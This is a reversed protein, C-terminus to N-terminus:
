MSVIQMDHKSVTKECDWPNCGDINERTLYFFYCMKVVQELKDLSLDFPLRTSYNPVFFQM